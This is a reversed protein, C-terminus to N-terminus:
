VNQGGNALIRWRSQYTALGAIKEPAVKRMEIDIKPLLGDPMLALCAAGTATGDRLQSAFISQSPRLSALLKLFIENQSFPGDVIIAHNSLLADLSESMMLACYLSALSARAEDTAPQPGIIRGKGGTEPIPGGSDTFSPLAMTGERIFQTAAAFTAKACDAGKAV